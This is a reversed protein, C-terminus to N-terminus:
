DLRVGVGALLATLRDESLLVAGIAVPASVIVGGYPSWGTLLAGGFLPGGVVLLGGCVLARGDRDGLLQDIGILATAPGFVIGLGLEAANPVGALAAVGLLLVVVLLGQGLRHFIPHTFTEDEGGAQGM